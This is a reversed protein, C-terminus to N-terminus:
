RTRLENEQTLHRRGGSRSERARPRLKRMCIWRTVAFSAMVATLVPVRPTPAAVATTRLWFRVAIHDTLSRM